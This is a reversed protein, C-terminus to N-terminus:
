QEQRWKNCLLTNVSGNSLLPNYLGATGRRSPASSMSFVAEQTLNSIKVATVIFFAAKQSTAGHREQVFRRKPPVYRRWRWPLFIRSRTQLQKSVSTGRERIKKGQLHLHYTGGFRRNVCSLCPAVDWFVANKVAEHITAHRVTNVSSNGPLTNIFDTVINNKKNISVVNLFPDMKASFEIVVYIYSNLCWRIIIEAFRFM